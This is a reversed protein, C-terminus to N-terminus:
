ILLGVEAHRPTISCRFPLPYSFLGPGESYSEPIDVAKGNLDKESEIKFCSLVSAITLWLVAEAFHRGVCGRRGFGFALITSDDNLESETTLFREPKFQYPDEYVQENHTMAWINAFVMSGKPIYYGDYINDETATHAVSLPIAPHWRMVERYLAEIYPLSKRDEFTPLQGRGVVEDIEQWAREQCKPNKAMALFFTGIASLTTDASAAFATSAMNKIRQIEEDPGGDAMNKQVLRAVLSDNIAGTNIDAMVKHFPIEQMEHCLQRVHEIYQTFLGLIPVWSPVFCLFSFWSTFFVFQPSFVTDITHLTKKSHVLLDDNGSNITIGYMSSLTLGGSLLDIHCMFNEPTQLLNRLFIGVCQTIASHQQVVADPRFNQQWTRRNKRWTESYDQLTLAFNWGTLEGVGPYPRGSYMRSRRELIDNALMANSIIILHDGFAELHMIDGYIKAWNAYHVWPKKAPVDLM